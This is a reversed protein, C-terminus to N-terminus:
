TDPRARSELAEVFANQYDALAEKATDVDAPLWGRDLSVAGLPRGLGVTWRTDPDTVIRLSQPSGHLILPATIPGRVTRTWGDWHLDAVRGDVPSGDSQEFNLWVPADWWSPAQITGPGTGTELVTLALHGNGGLVTDLAPALLADHPNGTGTEFRRLTDKGVKLDTSEALRNMTEALSLNRAKRLQQFLGREIRDIGEPLVVPNAPVARADQRLRALFRSVSSPLKAARSGNFTPQQRAASRLSRALLAQFGDGNVSSPEMVDVAEILKAAPLSAPLPGRGFEIWGPESLLVVIPSQDVSAGVCLFLGNPPLETEVSLRYLGWEAEVQISPSPSRIWMWVPTSPGRYVHTWTRSPELGQPAALSWLLHLLTGEAGLAEDLDRPRLSMLRSNAEWNTVSTRSVGLLDAM